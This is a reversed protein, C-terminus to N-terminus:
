SSDLRNDYKSRDYGPIYQLRTLVAGNGDSISTDIKVDAQPGGKTECVWLKRCIIGYKLGQTWTGGRLMDVCSPCLQEQAGLVEVADILYRTLPQYGLIDWFASPLGRRQSSLTHGCRVGDQCSESPAVDYLQAALQADLAQLEPRANLCLELDEMSLKELTSGDSRQWGHLLVHTDLNCCAYLATPLMEPRDVLCFLNFAEIADENQLEVVGNSRGQHPEWVSFDPNYVTKLRRLSEDLILDLQYKHGMRVLSALVSFQTLSAPVMYGLGDYIAGLFRKSDCVTDTVHLTPCGDYVDDSVTSNVLPQSINFLDQFVVSHRSLPGRHVRFATHQAVIVVNGDEFWMDPDRDFGVTHTGTVTLALNGSHEITLNQQSM